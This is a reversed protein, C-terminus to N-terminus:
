KVTRIRNYSEADSASVHDSAEMLILDSNLDPSPLSLTVKDFKGLVSISVLVNAEDKPIVYKLDTPTQLLTPTRIYSPMNRNYWSVNNDITVAMM